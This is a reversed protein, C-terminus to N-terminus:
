GHGWGLVLYQTDENDDEDTLDQLEVQSKGRLLAQGDM